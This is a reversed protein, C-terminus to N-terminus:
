DAISWIYFISNNKLLLFLGSKGGTPTSNGKWQGGGWCRWLTMIEPGEGREQFGSVLRGRGPDGAFQEGAKTRKNLGVAKWHKGGAAQIM